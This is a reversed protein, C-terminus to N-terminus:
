MFTTPIYIQETSINFKSTLINFLSRIIRSRIIIITKQKKMFNM